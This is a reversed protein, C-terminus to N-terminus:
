RARELPRHRSRLRKAHEIRELASLRESLAWAPTPVRDLVAMMERAYGLGRVAKRTKERALDALSALRSPTRDWIREARELATESLGLTRLRYKRGQYRVGALRGGREYPEIGADELRARFEAPSASITLADALAKALVAKTRPATRGEPLGQRRDRRVLECEGLGRVPPAGPREPAPQPREPATFVLSHTLAPYRQRQYHELDRKIAGFRARSLRLKKARGRLNASIVLHIHPNAGDTHVRGYALSQPARLALYHAALDYLMAPTAPDAGSLSLVEHYLAIGNRRRPAHAANAAFARTLAALDRGDARLNHLLPDGVGRDEGAIYGLLQAFSPATRSMSKVIM